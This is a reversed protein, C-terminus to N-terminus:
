DNALAERIEQKGARRRAKSIPRRDGITQNCDYGCAKSGRQDCYHAIRFMFPRDSRNM